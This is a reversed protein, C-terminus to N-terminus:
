NNSYEILLVHVDWMKRETKGRYDKGNDLASMNM